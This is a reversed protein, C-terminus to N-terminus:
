LFTFYVNILSGITIQGFVYPFVLLWFELAAMTLQTELTLTTQPRVLSLVSPLLRERIGGTPSCECGLTFEPLMLPSNIPYRRSSTSGSPFTNLSLSTFM